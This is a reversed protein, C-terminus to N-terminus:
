APVAAAYVLAVILGNQTNSFGMGQVLLPLWFLISYNAFIIGGEALGLMLVRSDRLARMVDHVSGSEEAQLRATVVRQEGQTLWSADAPGDPLFKLVALGILCAPVGELLFLWQWGHIGAVGNLGLILSAMPGGIILSATGASNFMATARGLWAKPFWLSLYLIVGPFFGSEAVGLLFRLGYFSAPGRILASAAAAAGWSALIFFIWRRAGVRYLMLNAPVALLAYSLFFISAGLGYVSPSFGLDKNMTLAAFAVNTRDLFNIVLGAIVLPLIRWACKRFVGDDNM